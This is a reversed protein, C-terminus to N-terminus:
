GWALHPSLLASTKISFASTITLPAQDEPASVVPRARSTTREAHNAANRVVVGRGTRAHTRYDGTSGVSDPRSGPPPVDAGSTMVRRSTTFLLQDEGNANRVVRILGGVFVAASGSNMPVTIPAFSFSGGSENIRLVSHNVDNPKGPLSRVLWLDVEYTVGAAPQSAGGSM